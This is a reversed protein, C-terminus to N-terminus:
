AAGAADAGPRHPHVGARECRGSPAGLSRSRAERAV